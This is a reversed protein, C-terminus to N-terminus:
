YGTKDNIFAPHIPPLSCDIVERLQNSVEYIYLTELTPLEHSYEPVDIGSVIENVRKIAEDMTGNVTAYWFNNDGLILYKKM